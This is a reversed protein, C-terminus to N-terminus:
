GQSAAAQGQARGCWSLQGGTHVLRSFAASVTFELRRLQLLEPLPTLLYATCVKCPAAAPQSMDLLDVPPKASILPTFLAICADYQPTEEFKLAQCVELFKRFASPEINSCLQKATWEMKRKCVKFGKDAGQAGM